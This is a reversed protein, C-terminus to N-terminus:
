ICFQIMAFMWINMILCNAFFSNVFTERPVIPYFSVFFFRLGFKVNGRMAAFVLYFCILIIFVTAFFGARSNELGELMDNLFPKVNKGNEVKLIAYLFFHVMMLISLVAM